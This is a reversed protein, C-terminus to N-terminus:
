GSKVERGKLNGSKEIRQGVKKLASMFEQKTTTLKKIDADKVKLM